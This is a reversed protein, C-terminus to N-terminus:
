GDFSQPKPWGCGPDLGGVPNVQLIQVAVDDYVKAAPSDLFRSLAGVLAPALLQIQIAPSPLLILYVSVAQLGLDPPPPPRSPPYSQWCAIHTWPPLARHGPSAVGECM